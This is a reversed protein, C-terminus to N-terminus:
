YVCCRTGCESNRAVGKAARPHPEPQRRPPSAPALGAAGLVIGIAALAATLGKHISKSPQNM